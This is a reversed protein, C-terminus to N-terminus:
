VKVLKKANTHHFHTLWALEPHQNLRNYREGKRYDGKYSLTLEKDDDEVRFDEVTEFIKFGLDGQFDPNETQIKEASKTIRAKTIDFITQYGAKYGQKKTDEKL